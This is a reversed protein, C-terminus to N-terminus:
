FGMNIFPAFFVSRPFRGSVVNVAGIQVGKLNKCINIIGIQAGTVDQGAVNVMGVQLGDMNRQVVNSIVAAQFGQTDGASNLLLSVQGGNMSQEALNFFPSIQFGKLVGTLNTILGVQIGNAEAGQRAKPDNYLIPHPNYSQSGRGSFADHFIMVPLLVIEVASLVGTTGEAASVGNALGIQIGNLKQAQNFLALQIGTVESEYNQNSFLAVQIGNFSSKDNDNALGAVQIGTFAGNDHDNVLGAMQFGIFPTKANSNVLGAAQLGWSRTSPAEDLGKLVNVLGGMEIGKLEGAGNTLGLDIGWVAKNNGWLLDLRVGCVADEKPVVQVPTVLSLQVPHCGEAYSAENALLMILGLIGAYIFRQSLYHTFRLVRCIKEALPHKGFSNTM